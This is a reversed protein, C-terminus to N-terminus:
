GESASSTIQMVSSAKGDVSLSRAPFLENKEKTLSMM